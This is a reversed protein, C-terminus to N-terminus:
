CEGEKQPLTLLRMVSTGTVIANKTFTSVSLWNLEVLSKCSNSSGAKLCVGKLQTLFNWHFLCILTINSFGPAGVLQSYFRNNAANSWGGYRVTSYRVSNVDGSAFVVQPPFFGAFSHTQLWLSHVSYKVCAPSQLLLTKVAGMSATGRRQLTPGSNERGATSFCLAALCCPRSSIKISEAGNWCWM